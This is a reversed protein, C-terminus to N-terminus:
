ATSTPAPVPAYNASASAPRSRLLDIQNRSAFAPSFGTLSPSHKKARSPAQDGSEAIAFSLETLTGRMTAALMASTYEGLGDPALLEVFADVLHAYDTDLERWREWGIAAPGEILVVTQYASQTCSDM